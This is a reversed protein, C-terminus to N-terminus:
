LKLPIRNMPVYHSSCMIHMGNTKNKVDVFIRKGKHDPLAEYIAKIIAHMSSFGKRTTTWLLAGGKQPLEPTVERVTVRIEHSKKIGCSNLYKEYESDM